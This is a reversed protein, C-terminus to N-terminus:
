VLVQKKLLVALQQFGDENGEFVPVELHLDDKVQGEGPILVVALVSAGLQEILAIESAISPMELGWAPNNDFYTRSPDHQLIVYNCRLSIIIESGCPGTPNRLSSQGEILMIDPSAEEVCKLVADELEGSVFDNLTSDLIIGYRNGELWGTQGTYIMETRYGEQRLARTVYKTTTRKGVACDMGLVAVRPTAVDLIRGTWFKLQALPKPKRIDVVEASNANAVAMFDSDDSLITHLGNAVSIGLGVAQLLSQRFDSPMLGGEFAVGVICWDPTNEHELLYSDLSEYIPVSVAGAIVQDTRQGAFKHDIVGVIRYRNTGRLLGHCTKAYMSDLIGNTLILAAPLPKM